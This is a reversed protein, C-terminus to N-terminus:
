FGFLSSLEDLGRRWQAAARLCLASETLAENAYYRRTAPATAARCCIPFFRALAM